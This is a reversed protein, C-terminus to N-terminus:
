CATKAVARSVLRPYDGSLRLQEPLRSRSAFEALKQVWKVRAEDIMLADFQHDSLDNNNMWHEFAAVDILDREQRFEM